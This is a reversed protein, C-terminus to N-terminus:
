ILSDVDLFQVDPGCIKLVRPTELWTGLNISRVPGHDAQFTYDDFVHMHGTILIDFNNKKHIKKAYERILDKIKEINQQGYHGSRKRSKSSLYEGVHKWFFGPVIHGIPEIWPKRVTERYKLYAVDKPNIFDGHEMRVKYEGIKFYQENEFVPIGLKKTWFVDIHFDHNGEFYFVKGGKNIFDKIMEILEKYHNQFARGDSLWFDFIDGLLFLQNNAADQSLFHLFRLLRNGNRENIDKLHLDSIFWYNVKM